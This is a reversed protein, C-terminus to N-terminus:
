AAKDDKDEKDKPLERLKNLKSPKKNPIPSSIPNRPWNRVKLKTDNFLIYM